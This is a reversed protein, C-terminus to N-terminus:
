LSLPKFIKLSDELARMAAIKEVAESQSSPIGLCKYRAIDNTDFYKLALNMIKSDFTKIGAIYLASFNAFKISGFKPIESINRPLQKFEFDETKLDYNLMRPVFSSGATGCTGWEQAAYYIEIANPTAKLVPKDVTLVSEFDYYNNNAETSPIVFLYKTLSATGGCHGLRKILFGINKGNVQLTEVFDSPLGEHEYACAVMTEGSTQGPRLIKGNKKVSYDIRIGEFSNTNKIWREKGVIEYHDNNITYEAKETKIQYNQNALSANLGFEALYIASYHYYGTHELNILSLIEHLALGEKVHSDAISNWRERNLKILQNQPFNVAVCEQTENGVKIELPQDVVVIKLNSIKKEIDNKVLGQLGHIGKSEINFLANRFSAEFEIGAEDGGNGAHDGGAFVKLGLICVIFFYM